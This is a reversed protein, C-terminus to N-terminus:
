IGGDRRSLMSLKQSTLQVRAQISRNTSVTGLGFSQLVKVQQKRGVIKERESIDNEVSFCVYERSHAFSSYLCTPLTCTLYVSSVGPLHHDNIYITM